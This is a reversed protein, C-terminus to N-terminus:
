VCPIEESHLLYASAENLSCNNRIEGYHKNEVCNLTDASNQQYIVQPTVNNKPTRKRLLIWVMTTLAIAIIMLIMTNMLLLTTHTSSGEHKSEINKSNAAANSGNEIKPQNKKNSEMHTEETTDNTPISRLTTMTTTIMNEAPTSAITPSADSSMSTLTSITTKALSRLTTTSITALTTSAATTTSGVVVSSSCNIRNAISDLHKWTISPFLTGKLYSCNFDNTDIGVIKTNPIVSSTFGNMERLQNHSIALLKLQNTQSAFVSIDLKILKNRSLDLSQLHTQNLFTNAEIEILDNHSLNLSQIKVLNEFTNTELKRIFNNSLDLHLLNGLREFTDVKLIRIQNYSLNLIKLNPHSELIGKDFSAIQNHSFNLKELNFDGALAYDDIVKIKNFSFDIERLEVNKHFLFSPIETIENHSANLKILEKAGSFTDVQFSQVGLSSMDFTHIKYYIKFLDSPIQTMECDQFDVYGFWHRYFSEGNRCTRSDQFMTMLNNLRINETCVFTFFSHSIAGFDFFICDGIQQYKTAHVTYGILLHLLILRKFISAM